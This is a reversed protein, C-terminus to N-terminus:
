QKRIFLIWIEKDSHEVIWKLQSYQLGGNTKIEIYVEKNNNKNILKFDPHGTMVIKKVGKINQYDKIIFEEGFIRELFEGYDIFNTSSADGFPVRRIYKFEPYIEKEIIEFPTPSLGIFTIKHLKEKFFVYKKLYNHILDKTTM